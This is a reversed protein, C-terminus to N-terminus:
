FKRLKDLLIETLPAKEEDGISQYCQKLSLLLKKILTENSLPSANEISEKNEHVFYELEKAGIIAGKHEVNIYFLYPGAEEGYVEKSIQPEYYGLILYQGVGIPHIPLNLRQAIICYLTSLSILNGKRSVLLNNILCNEPAYIDTTNMEFHYLEFFVHNIISVKELSTLADNFEIWTDRVIKDILHDVKESAISPYHITSGLIWGDLLTKEESVVWQATKDALRSLKLQNIILELRDHQLLNTSSSLAYELVPLIAPGSEILKDRVAFFVEEDRDDILALLTDINVIEDM